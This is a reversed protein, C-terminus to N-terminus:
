RNGRIFSRCFARSLSECAPSASLEPTFRPLSQRFPPYPVLGGTGFCIKLEQEAYIKRFFEPSIGNARYPFAFSKCQIQFRDSLWRMSERTQTLQEALTLEAYLPHDVSHAGIAFGQRLLGEVQRSSLYPRQSDLYWQFDCQLIRALEDLVQRDRYSIGLIQKVLSSNRPVGARLLERSAEDLTAAGHNGELADILLSKKQTYCLEKNDITATTLFFIAPAGIAQLLPAIIDYNERFGDDFTFLVSRPPLTRDGHMLCIIDEETVPSYNQLLFELDAKFQRINRFRRGLGSIHPVEYDCVIHWYPIVLNVGCMRHWLNLPIGTCIRSLCRDKFRQFMAYSVKRLFIIFRDFAAAIEPLTAGPFLGGLRGLRFRYGLVDHEDRGVSV